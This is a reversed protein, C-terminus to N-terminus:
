ELVQLNIVSTDVVGVDNLRDGDALVQGRFVLRQQSVPIGSSSEILEKVEQASALPHIEISRELTAGSVVDTHTRITLSIIRRDAALSVVSPNMTRRELMGQLFALFDASQDEDLRTLLYEVRERINLEATAAGASVAAPPLGLAARHDAAPPARCCPCSKQPSRLIVNRACDLHFKNGHCAFVAAARPDEAAIPDQCVVCGEEEVAAGSVLASLTLAALLRFM